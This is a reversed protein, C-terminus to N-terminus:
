LSMVSLVKGADSQSHLEQLGVATQQNMLTGPNCHILMSSFYVMPIVMSKSRNSIFTVPFMYGVKVQVVKHIHYANDARRPCTRCKIYSSVVSSQLYYYYYM